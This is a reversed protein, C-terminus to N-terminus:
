FIKGEQLCYIHNIDVVPTWNKRVSTWGTSWNNSQFTHIRVVIHCVHLRALWSDNYRDHISNPIQSYLIVIIYYWIPFAVRFIFIFSNVIANTKKRRLYINISINCIIFFFIMLEVTFVVYRLVYPGAIANFCKILEFGASILIFPGYAKMITFILRPHQQEGSIEKQCDSKTRM